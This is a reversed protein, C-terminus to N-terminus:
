KKTPAQGRNKNTGKWRAAAAQRAVESRQEPTLKEMRAIGSAKGGKRGIKALYQSVASKRAMNEISSGHAPFNLGVVNVHQFPQPM